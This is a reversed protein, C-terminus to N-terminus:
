MSCCFALCVLTSACLAANRPNWYNLLSFRREVQLLDDNSFSPSIYNLGSLFTGLNMNIVTPTMGSPALRVTGRRRDVGLLVFFDYACDIGQNELIRSTAQDFWVHTFKSLTLAEESGKLHLEEFIFTEENSAFASTYAVSSLLLFLLYKLM